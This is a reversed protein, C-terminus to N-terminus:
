FGTQHYISVDFIYPYFISAGEICLLILFKGEQHVVLDRAVSDEQPILAVPQRAASFVYCISLWCPM